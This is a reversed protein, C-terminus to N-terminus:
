TLTAYTCRGEPVVPSTPVPRAVEARPDFPDCRRVDVAVSVDVSADVSVDVSADVSVAHIPIPLGRTVTPDALGGAEAGEAGEDGAVPM